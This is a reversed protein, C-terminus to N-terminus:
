NVNSLNFHYHPYDSINHLIDSRMDRFMATYKPVEYNLDNRHTRLSKDSAKLEDVMIKKPKKAFFIRNFEKLIELKSISSGNTLNWIGMMGEDIGFEIARALELTTVGSWMVRKYGQINSEKTTLFWHLLGEGNSKLEPGIISTRITLHPQTMIEGLAKTRGYIDDADRLSSENYGGTNGSYVCDTSVHIVNAGIEDAFSTLYHPLLANVRIAQIVSKHSGRILIGVCNVIYNPQIEMIKDRLLDFDNVDIIISKDRRKKRYVMDYVRFDKRCELRKLVQHGLMGTSGIVLVRKEM